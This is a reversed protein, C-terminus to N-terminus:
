WEGKGEGEGGEGGFCHVGGGVMEVVGWLRGTMQGRRAEAGERRGVQLWVGGGRVWWKSGVYMAGQGAVVVAVAVDAGQEWWWWM